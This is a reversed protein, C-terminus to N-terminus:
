LRVRSRIQLLLGRHSQAVGVPVVFQGVSLPASRTLGGPVSSLYYDAGSLLGGHEGTVADWQDATAELSGRIAIAGVNGGNIAVSKVLGCVRIKDEGDAKALRCTNEGSIYVPQGIRISDSEGNTLLVSEFSGFLQWWSSDIPSFATATDVVAYWPARPPQMQTARVTQYLLGRFSVL